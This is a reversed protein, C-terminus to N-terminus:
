AINIRKKDKIQVFFEPFEELLPFSLSPRLFLENEDFEIKQRNTQKLM